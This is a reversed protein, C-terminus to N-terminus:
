TQEPSMYAATGMAVGTSALHEPEVSATPLASAGVAEAV